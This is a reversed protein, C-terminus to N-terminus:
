IHYLKVVRMKHTSCKKQDRQNCYLTQNPTSVIFITLMVKTFISAGYIQEVHIIECKM